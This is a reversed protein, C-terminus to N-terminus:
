GLDKNKSSDFPKSQLSFTGLYVKIRVTHFTACVPFQGMTGLSAHLAATHPCTFFSPQPANIQSQLYCLPQSPDLLRGAPHCGRCEDLVCLGAWLLCPDIAPACRSMIPHNTQSVCGALTDTLKHTYSHNHTLTVCSTHPQRYHTYIYIIHPGTYKINYLWIHILFM